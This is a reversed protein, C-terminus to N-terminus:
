KVLLYEDDKLRAIPYNALSEFVKLRDEISRSLPDPFLDERDYHPFIIKNTLGIASLDNIQVNNMQPTFLSVVEINQGFIMAGASVGIFIVGQKALKKIILDAGSKKLHYLLYFPNGGNIYIVDYKRLIDPQDFEIDTFDVLNFGMEILDEKAKIAFKNDQKQQSATTIVTAKKNELQDDILQLFQQKIQDTFFGNSTLLVRFM